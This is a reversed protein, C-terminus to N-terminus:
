IIHQKSEVEFAAVVAQAMQVAISRCIGQLSLKTAKCLGTCLMASIIVTAPVKLDQFDPWDAFSHLSSAAICLKKCLITPANGALDISPIQYLPM